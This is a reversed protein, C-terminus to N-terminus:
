RLARGRSLRQAPEFVQLAKATGEFRWHWPEYNVGQGNAPPFSLVFHFRAANANLWAFAATREFSASLNTQPARADGLDVAYGTSHESYGPPASVQARERASQNRASKVDFFLHQQLAISRYASLIVLDIGDAEAAAQMALLAEAADRQLQLGPAVSVLETSNIERYPLHGLLRGDSDPRAGIAKLLDGEPSRQMLAPSLAAAILVLVAATIAATWRRRALPGRRQPPILSRRAQPIDGAEAAGLPSAPSRRQAAASRSGFPTLTGCLVSM